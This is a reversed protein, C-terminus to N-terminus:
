QLLSIYVILCAQGLHTRKKDNEWNLQVLRDLNLDGSGSPVPEGPFSCEQLPCDRDEHIFALPYQHNYTFWKKAYMSTWSVLDMLTYLLFSMVTTKIKVWSLLCSNILSKCNGLKSWIDFPRGSTCWSSESWKQLQLLVPETSHERQWSRISGLARWRWPSKEIFCRWGAGCQAAEANRPWLLQQHQCSDRSSKSSNEIQKKDLTLDM